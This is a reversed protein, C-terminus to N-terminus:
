KGAMFRAVDEAEQTITYGPLSDLFVKGYHMRKIRNDLLVLVGVASHFGGYQSVCDSTLAIIGSEESRDLRWATESALENRM